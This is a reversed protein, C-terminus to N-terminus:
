WAWQDRITAYEEILNMLKPPRRPYLQKRKGQGATDIIEIFCRQNGVKTSKRYADEITPDYTQPLFYSNLDLSFLPELLRNEYRQPLHFISMTISIFMLLVSIM